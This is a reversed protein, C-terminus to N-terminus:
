KEGEVNKEGDWAMKAGAGEEPGSFTRKMTPDLATTWPTWEEWHKLKNVHPYIAEAKGWGANCNWRKM